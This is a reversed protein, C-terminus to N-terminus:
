VHVVLIFTILLFVSQERAGGGFISYNKFARYSSFWKDLEALKKKNSKMKEPSDIKLIHNFDSIYPKL